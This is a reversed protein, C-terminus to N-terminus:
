FPTNNFDGFGGAGTKGQRAETWSKAIMRKMEEDGSDYLDKMMTMLGGMPDKENGIDAAAASTKKKGLV